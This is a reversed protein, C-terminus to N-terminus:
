SLDDTGSSLGVSAVSLARCSHQEWHDQLASRAMSCKERLHAVRKQEAEFQRHQGVLSALKESAEFYVTAAQAYENLLTNATSCKM